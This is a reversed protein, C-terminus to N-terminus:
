VNSFPRDLHSSSAKQHQFPKRNLRRGPAHQMQTISTNADQLMQSTLASFRFLAREKALQIVPKITHM